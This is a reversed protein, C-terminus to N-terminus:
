RLGCLRAMEEDAEPWLPAESVALNGKEMAERMMEISPVAYIRTTETSSHGLIRSVLELEVGNQYLNTARSRRVMHPYVHKPLNPHDPRIIDAYKKLIREVNGTSMMGAQGHILTYFLFSNGEKKPHYKEVYVNLHTVTKDTISVTREKDGKGHIRIYPICSQTNVSSMKLALLESVRIASDYLLIMIMRDRLGIKTNPPAALLAALDEESITERTRKPVRLFPVKSATLAISQLSIDSDAAYWLYARLAALRNNCTREACGSDKLFAVYDLLFDHTCDDFRFKRLSIQKQNTVYRRLVTLADRYTEITHNSKLVQNPLYHNLYDSTRSFFLEQINNKSKM